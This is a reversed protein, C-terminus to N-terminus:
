APRTPCIALRHLARLDFSCVRTMIKASFTYKCKAQRVISPSLFSSIFQTAALMQQDPSSCTAVVDQRVELDHAAPLVPALCCPGRTYRSCTTTIRSAERRTQPHRGEAILLCFCLGAQFTRPRTAGAGGGGLWGASSEGSKQVCCACEQGGWRAFVM